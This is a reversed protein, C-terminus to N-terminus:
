LISDCYVKASVLHTVVFNSSQNNVIAGAHALSSKGSVVGGPGHEGGDHSTGAVLTHHYTHSLLVGIDSVLGLGLPTDEGQLVGNLMANDGVPVVHLLDPVVGEVILQTDGGLLVGDEQSLGGEVGLGVPLLHGLDHKLGEVRRGHVHSDLSHEGQIGRASGSSDDQVGAITDGVGHGDILSIGKGMGNEPEVQGATLQGVVQHLDEGLPAVGEGGSGLPMPDPVDLLLQAVNGQVELLLHGGGGGGGGQLLGILKGVALHDGDAVLPEPAGLSKELGAEKAHLGAADVLGDVVGDHLAVNVDPLVQISVSDHGSAGSHGGTNSVTHLLLDGGQGGGGNLDLNDSGRLPLVRDPDSAGDQSGEGGELLHPDGLLLIVLAAWGDDVALAELGHGGGDVDQDDDDLGDSSLLSQTFSQLGRNKGVIVVTTYHVLM